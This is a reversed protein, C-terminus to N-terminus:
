PWPLNRLTQGDFRRGLTTTWEMGYGCDCRITIVQPEASMHVAADVTTLEDAHVDVGLVTTKNDGFIFFLDYRGPPLDPMVFRGAEDTFAIAQQKLAPSTAVVTVLLLPIGHDDGSVVGDITGGAIRAVPEIPQPV